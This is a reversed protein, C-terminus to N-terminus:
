PWTFTETVTEGPHIRVNHWGSAAGPNVATYAYSITTDFNHNAQPRTFTLTNIGRTLKARFASITNNDGINNDALANGEPTAMGSGGPYMVQIHDGGSTVLIASSVVEFGYQSNTGQIWALRPYVPDVGPGPLFYPYRAIVYSGNTDSNLVSPIERVSVPMVETTGDQRCTFRELDVVEFAEYSRKTARVISYELKVPVEHAISPVTRSEVRVMIECAGTFNDYIFEQLVSKSAPQSDNFVRQGNSVWTAGPPLVYRYWDEGIEWTGPSGGDASQGLWPRVWVAFRQKTGGGENGIKTVGWIEPGWKLTYSSPTGAYNEAEVTFQRPGKPETAYGGVNWRFWYKYVKEWEPHGWTGHRYIAFGGAPPNSAPKLRELETGNTTSLTTFEAVGEPRFRIVRPSLRRNETTAGVKPERHVVQLVVFGTQSNGTVPQSPREYNNDTPIRSTTGVSALVPSKTPTRVAFMGAQQLPDVGIGPRGVTENLKDSKRLEFHLHVPLGTESTPGVVGVTDGRKLYSGREPPQGQTSLHLYRSYWGDLHNITTYRGGAIGNTVVIGGRSARVVTQVTAYLDLGAHVNNHPFGDRKHGRWEGYTGFVEPNITPLANSWGPTDVLAQVGALATVYALSPDPPGWLLNIIPVLTLTSSQATVKDFRDPTVGEPTPGELTAAIWYGETPATAIIQVEVRCTGNTFQIESPYLLADPHQLGDSKRLLSLQAPGTFDILENTQGILLFDATYTIRSTLNSPFGLTWLGFPPSEQPEDPIDMTFYDELTEGPRRIAQFFGQEEPTISLRLESSVPANTLLRLGPDNRLQDLSQGELLLLVGAQEGAPVTLELNAGARALRIATNTEAPVRTIGLLLASAIIASWATAPLTGPLRLALTTELLIPLHMAFRRRLESNSKGDEWTAVPRKTSSSVLNHQLKM